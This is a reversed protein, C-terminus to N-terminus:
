SWRVEDLAEGWMRKELKSLAASGNHMYKKQVRTMLNAM